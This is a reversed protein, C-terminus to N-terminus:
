FISPVQQTLGNSCPLELGVVRPTHNVEVMPSMDFFEWGVDDWWPNEHATGLAEFGGADTFAGTSPAPSWQVLLISMAHVDWIFMGHVPMFMGIYM